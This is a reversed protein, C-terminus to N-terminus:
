RRGGTDRPCALVEGDPYRVETRESFIAFRAEGELGIAFTGGEGLDSTLSVEIGGGRTDVAVETRENSGYVYSLVLGNGDFHCSEFRREKTSDSDDEDSQASRYWGVSTVILACLTLGLLAALLRKM